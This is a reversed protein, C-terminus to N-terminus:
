FAYGASVSVASATTSYVGDAPTGQDIKRDPGYLFQYALALSFRESEYGVGASFIHRNSDPVSPNFSENPVSNESYIYGASLNVGNSFYRTAGFEYIFSSEYNFPIVLNGSKQQHLTVENFNDWDTWDINAELNWAPTPRFSYGLTVSQPFRITADADEEPFSTDIPDIEETPLGLSALTSNVAAQGFPGVAARVQQIAANATAIQQNLSDLNRRQDDSLQVSSHGSFEIEVPSRYVLGFSHQRAPRWMIGAQFGLGVGSGDFRFKDGPGLIGRELKADAINITPGAAVSLQDNIKWALVPSLTIFRIRAKTALERFQSNEPYELSLGFPSYIGFGFGVPSEAPKVTYFLQPISQIEHKNHIGKGGGEPSFETRLEIAYTGLRFRQGDLMGIGAPNYYIASANDATAAFAEGRATAFADQDPLRFGLAFVSSPLLCLLLASTLLFRMQTIVLIICCIM